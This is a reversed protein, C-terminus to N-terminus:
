LETLNAEIITPNFNFYQRTIDFFFEYKNGAIGFISAENSFVDTEIFVIESICNCILFFTTIIDFDSIISSILLYNRTLFM